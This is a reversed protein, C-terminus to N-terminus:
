QGEIELCRSRCCSSAGLMTTLPPGPPWSSFGARSAEDGEPLKVWYFSWGTVLLKRGTSLSTATSSSTGFGTARPRCCKRLHRNADLMSPCGSSELLGVEVYLQLQTKPSAALRRSLREPAEDDAGKSQSQKPWLLPPRWWFSISQSLVKGFTRPNEFAYCTAALGGFSSGALITREPDATVHYQKRLWPSLEKMM